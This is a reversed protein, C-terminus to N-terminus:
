LKISANAWMTPGITTSPGGSQDISSTSGKIKLAIHLNGRSRLTIIWFGDEFIKHIKQFNWFYIVLKLTRFLDKLLKLFKM